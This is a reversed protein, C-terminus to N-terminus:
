DELNLLKKLAIEPTDSIESLKNKVKEYEDFSFKLKLEITDEFENVDVEKNSNSNEDLDSDINLDIDLEDLESENFGIDELDFDIDLEMLENIELQLLESDFSSDDGLKNDLIRLKKIQTPTLNDM